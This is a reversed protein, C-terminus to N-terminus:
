VGKGEEFVVRARVVQAFPITHREGREELTFHQQSVELLRGQHTMGGKAVVQVLKGVAQAYHWPEWLGREVGPSSVELVYPGPIPDAQDLLRELIQSTRACDDLTVGSPRDIQVVLFSQRGGRHLEWHYLQVGAEATGQQLLTELTEQIKGM